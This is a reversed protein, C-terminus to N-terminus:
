SKWPMFYFVLVLLYVFLCVHFVCLCMSYIFATPTLSLACRIFMFVIWVCQRWLSNWALRATYMSSLICYVCVTLCHSLFLMSIFNLPLLIYFHVFHCHFMKWAILTPAFRYRNMWCSIRLSDIEIANKTEREGNTETKNDRTNKGNDKDWSLRTDDKAWEDEDGNKGLGNIRNLNVSYKICVYYIAVAVASAIGDGSSSM